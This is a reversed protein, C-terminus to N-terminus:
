RRRLRLSMGDGLDLEIEWGPASGTVAGLDIWPFASPQPQDCATTRTKGSLRRKWNAFTSLALQEHKCFAAQSLGSDAQEAILKRWQDATRRTRTTKSM